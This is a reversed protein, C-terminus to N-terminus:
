GCSRSDAIRHALFREMWSRDLSTFAERLDADLVWNVRRRTIAVALADLADHPSRGPRFGYSVQTPVPGRLRERVHKRPRLGKGARPTGRSEFM